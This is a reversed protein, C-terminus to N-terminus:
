PPLYVRRVLVARGVAVHAVELRSPAVRQVRRQVNAVLVEPLKGEFVVLFRRHVHHGGDDRLSGLPWSGSMSFSFAFSCAAPPNAAFFPPPNSASAGYM